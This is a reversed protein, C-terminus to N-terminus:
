GQGKKDGKTVGAIEYYSRTEPNYGLYFDRNALVGEPRDKKCRIWQRNKVKLDRMSVFCFDAAAAIRMSGYFRPPDLDRDRYLKRQEDSSFQSTAIITCKEVRSIDLLVDALEGLPDRKGMVILGKTTQDVGYLGLHDIVVLLPQEWHIIEAFDGLAASHRDYIALFRDLERIARRLGEHSEQDHGRKNEVEWRTFGGYAQAIRATAEAASAERSLLVTKHGSAVAHAIMTYAFTSKGHSTPTGYVALCGDWLGGDLMENFTDMRHFRTTIKPVYGSAWIASPSPNYHHGSAQISRLAQIITPLWVLVDAPNRRSLDETMGVIENVERLAADKHIM